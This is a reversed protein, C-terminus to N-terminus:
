SPPGLHTISQATRLSRRTVVRGSTQRTYTTAIRRRVLKVRIEAIRDGVIVPRMLAVRPPVVQGAAELLDGLVFIRTRATRAVVVAAVAVPARVSSRALAAPRSREPVRDRAQPDAQPSAERVAHVRTRRSAAPTRSSPAASEPHCLTPETTRSTPHAQRHAT